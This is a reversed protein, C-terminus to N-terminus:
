PSTFLNAGQYNDTKWISGNIIRTITPRSVEFLTALEVQSIGSKGLRRIDDAKEDTLKSNATRKGSTGHRKKDDENDQYTGWALNDISNNKSNGDLHRVIAREFPPPSIFSEALLRHVHTRRKKGGQQCLCVKIYGVDNYLKPLPTWKDKILMGPYVHCSRWNSEITGDEYIRYAPYDKIIAVKLKVEKLEYTFLNAGNIPWRKQWELM